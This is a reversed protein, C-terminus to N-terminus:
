RQLSHFDDKDITQIHEVLWRCLYDGTDGTLDVRRSHVDFILRDLEALLHRHQAIHRRARDRDIAALYAEEEHFHYWTIRRLRELLADADALEHHKPLMGIENVTDILARHHQDVWDVGVSLERTWNILTEKRPESRGDVLALDDGGDETKHHRLFNQISDVMQFWRAAGDDSVFDELASAIKRIMDEYDAKYRSLDDAATDGLLVIKEQYYQEVSERFARLRESLVAAESGMRWLQVIEGVLGVLDRHQNDIVLRGSL